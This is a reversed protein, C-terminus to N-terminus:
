KTWQTINYILTRVGSIQGMCFRQIQLHQTAHLFVFFFCILAFIFGKAAKNPGAHLRFNKLNYIILVCSFQLSTVQNPATQVDNRTQLM